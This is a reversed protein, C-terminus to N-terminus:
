GADVIRDPGGVLGVLRRQLHPHRVQMGDAGGEVLDTGLGRQPCEVLEDQPRFVVLLCGLTLPYAVRMSETLLCMSAGASATHFTRISVSAHGRQPGVTAAASSSPARSVSPAVPRTWVGTPSASGNVMVSKSGPRLHAHDTAPTGAVECETSGSPAPQRALM